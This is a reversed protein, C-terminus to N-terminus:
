EFKTTQLQSVVYKLLFIRLDLISAKRSKKEYYRFNAIEVLIQVKQSKGQWIERTPRGQLMTIPQQQNPMGGVTPPRALQAELASTGPQITLNQGFINLFGSIQPTGQSKRVGACTRGCMQPTCHPQPHLSSEGVSDTQNKMMRQKKVKPTEESESLEDSSSLYMRVLKKRNALYNILPYQCSIPCTAIYPVLSERKLSTMLLHASHAKAWKSITTKTLGKGVLPAM